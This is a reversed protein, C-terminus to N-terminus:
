VLVEERVAEELELAAGRGISIMGFIHEQEVVIVRRKLLELVAWFTVILDQRTIPEALLDDFSFWRQQSLRQRVEAAVEAVSRRPPLHVGSPENAPTVLQLRRQLAAILESVTHSITPPPPPPDPLLPPATRVFTRREEEQWARFMAALQKYHQYERLQRALAEADADEDTSSSRGPLSPRPLLARSKILLLRAAMSVFEALAHPDPEELARVHLLYQDAVQALAITTIDLEAREILRLLLDLPGAFTPLTITYM